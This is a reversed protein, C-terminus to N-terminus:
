NIDRLLVIKISGSTYDGTKCGVRIKVGNTNNIIDVAEGTYIEDDVWGVLDDTKTTVQVTVTGVFSSSDGILLTLHGSGAEITETFQNEATIEKVINM